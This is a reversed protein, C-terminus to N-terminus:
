ILFCIYHMKRIRTKLIFNWLWIRSFLSISLIMHYKNYVFFNLYGKINNRFCLYHILLILVVKHLLQLKSYTCMMSPLPHCNVLQSRKSQYLTIYAKDAQPVCRSPQTTTLDATLSLCVNAIQVTCRRRGWNNVYEPFRGM